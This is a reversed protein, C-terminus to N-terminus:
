RKKTNYFPDPTFSLSQARNREWNARREKEHEKKWNQYLQCSDHCTPHRKGCDRCPCKKPDYHAIIAKGFTM